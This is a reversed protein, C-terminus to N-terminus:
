VTQHEHPTMTICLNYINRFVYTYTKLLIFARYDVIYLWSIAMSSKAKIGFQMCMQRGQKDIFM